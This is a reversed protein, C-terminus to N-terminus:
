IISSNWDGANVPRHHRYYCHHNFTRSILQWENPQLKQHVNMMEALLNSTERLQLNKTMFLNKHKKKREHKQESDGDDSVDSDSNDNDGDDLQSQSNFEIGNTLWKGDFYSAQDSSLHISTLKPHAAIDIMDQISLHLNQLTLSELQTLFSLTQRIPIIWDRTKTQNADHKRVKLSRLHSVFALWETLWENRDPIKIQDSDFTVDFSRLYRAVSLILRPRLCPWHYPSLIDRLIEYNLDSM